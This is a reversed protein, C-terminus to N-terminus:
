AKEEHEVMFVNAYLSARMQQGQQTQGLYGLADKIYPHVSTWYFGPYSHRLEGPHRYGLRANVGTEEFEYFLAPIKQLYRPDSLQGILDAARVLMPYGAM